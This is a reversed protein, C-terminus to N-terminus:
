VLGLFGAAQAIVFCVTSAIGTTIAFTLAPWKIHGTERGIILLTTGCPFHLLSFLMTNLATLGPGGGNALFLQRMAEISDLELM